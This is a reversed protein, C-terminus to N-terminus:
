GRCCLHSPQSPQLLWGDRLYSITPLTCLRSSEAQSCHPLVSFRRGFDSKIFLFLQKAAALQSCTGCMAPSSHSPQTHYHTAAQTIFFCILCIIWFEPPIECTFFGNTVSQHLFYHSTPVTELVNFCMYFSTNPYEQTGM